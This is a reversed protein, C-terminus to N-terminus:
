RRTAGSCAATASAWRGRRATRTPSSRYRSTALTPSSGSWSCPPTASRRSGRPALAPSPTPSVRRRRRGAPHRSRRRRGHGQDDAPVRDRRGVRRAEEVSDVPGGSWPAVPVDSREALRKAEIKDGLRRMVAPPPGIFVVGLRECLEAFEPREAVFGWGVWASDARAAILARELAVLDLYPSGADPPRGDDICVAEDAERVFMASREAETHLAISRIDIGHEHRLERVANVLRMAADGRNVIAIRRLGRDMSPFLVHSASAGVCRHAPPRTVPIHPKGSTPWPCM